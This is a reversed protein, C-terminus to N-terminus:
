PQCRGECKCGPYCSLNEKRCGCRGVHCDKCSCKQFKRSQGIPPLDTWYPKWIEEMKWGYQAPDLMQIEKCDMQSWIRAQLLSRMMHYKLANQTPPINEVQRIKSFLQQRAPNVESLETNKDYLLCVFRELVQFDNDCPNSLTETLNALVPTLEPHLGWAAWCSKKGKKWFFSTNDCGTLSHFLLLARCKEPGLKEAIDRADIYRHSNSSTGFSLYIALNKKSAYSVALVVVDTDNTRIMFSSNGTEAADAIHLFIRSDAEEHNCPQLASNDRSAPVSRIQDGTSFLIIKGEEKMQTMVEDALYSILLTKNSDNRLFSKWDKPLQTSKSIKAIKTGIGRTDRVHSKLSDQKYVDNVVDLRSAGETILRLYPIVRNTAWDNFTKENILDPKLMNIM